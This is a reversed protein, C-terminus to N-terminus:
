SMRYEGFVQPVNRLRRHLVTLVLQPPFFEIARIRLRVIGVSRGGSTQSTLALKKQPYLTDRPWRLPDGRGYERNELGFGRSKWELLEEIMSVSSLPGRSVASDVGLKVV